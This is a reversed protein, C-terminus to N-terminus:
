TTSCLTWKMVSKVGNPAILTALEEQHKLNSDLPKIIERVRTMHNIDVQPEDGVVCSLCATFPLVAFTKQSILAYLTLYSNLLIYDAPESLM